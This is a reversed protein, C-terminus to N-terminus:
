AVIANFSVVYGPYAEAAAPGDYLWLLYPIDGSLPRGCTTAAASGILSSM